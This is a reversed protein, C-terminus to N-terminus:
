LPDQRLEATAQFLKTKWSDHDRYWVSSARVSWQGNSNSHYRVRYTVIAADDNLPMTVFDDLAPEQVDLQGIGELLEVTRRAGLSGDHAYGISIADDAYMEALADTDKDEFSRWRDRELQMLDEM